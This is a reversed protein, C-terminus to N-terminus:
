FKLSHFVRPTSADKKQLQAWEDKGVRANWALKSGRHKDTMAGCHLLGVSCISPFFMESMAIAGDSYWERAVSIARRSVRQVFEPAFRRQEMPVRNEFAATSEHRHPWNKFGDLFPLSRVLDLSKYPANHAYFEVLDTLSGLVGVDQELMWVYAIPANDIARWWHLLVSDHHDWAVPGFVKRGRPNKPDCSGVLEDNTFNFVRIPALVAEDSIGASAKRLMQPVMEEPDHTRDVLVHLSLGESLGIQRAYEMIRAIMATTPHNMQVVIATDQGSQLDEGSHHYNFLMFVMCLALSVVFAGRRPRSKSAGEGSMLDDQAADMSLM